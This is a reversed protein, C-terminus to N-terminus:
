TRVREQAGHLSYTRQQTNDDTRRVAEQRQVHDLRHTRTENRLGLMALLRTPQVDVLLPVDDALKSAAKRLDNVAGAASSTRLLWARLWFNFLSAIEM